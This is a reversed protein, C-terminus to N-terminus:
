QAAPIWKERRVRYGAVDICPGQPRARDRANFVELPTKRGLSRHPRVENYYAVFRDLTRQLQKTTALHEQKDLFKKMTQHFREVKGCTQPHYPRSHKSDIGLALLEAEFASTAGSESATFVRGNDSLLAAPYGWKAAAKHLSRVVDPSRTTAFVRSSVCLRSHDDIINLVEVVGGTLAVHTVDAQWCENPIEASFRRWSSRPRKHPQPTVFGRAKLTRWITSISPVNRHRRALHVRITEAGADLGRDALEKRLAVIEDEFLDSIRGPSRQPRRSRPVLGAEGERRYRALRRYLWSRDVGYIRALEGVPRGTRLHVEIAFRGKDM